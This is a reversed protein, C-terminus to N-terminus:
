SDEYDAVDPNKHEIKASHVATNSTVQHVQRALKCIALEGKGEEM